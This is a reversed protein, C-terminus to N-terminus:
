EQYKMEKSFMKKKYIVKENINHKFFLRKQSIKPFIEVLM